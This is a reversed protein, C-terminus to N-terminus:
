KKQLNKTNKYIDAHNILLLNIKTGNIQSFKKLSKLLLPISELSICEALRHLRAPQYSSFIPTTMGARWLGYSLDQLIHSPISKWSGLRSSLIQAANASPGILCGVGVRNSAGM